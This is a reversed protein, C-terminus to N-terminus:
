KFVRCYCVQGATLIVQVSQLLLSTWCYTDSSCEATVFKTWCYTDTSCVANVSKTWCYTDTSCEATVSTTWCYTDSSFQLLLRQGATLTM